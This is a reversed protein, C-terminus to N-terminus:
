VVNKEQKNIPKKNKKETKKKERVRFKLITKTKTEPWFFDIEKLYLLFPSFM